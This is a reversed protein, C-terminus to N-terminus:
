MSEINEPYTEQHFADRGQKYDAVFLWGCSVLRGFGDHIPVTLCSRTDRHQHYKSGPPRQSPVFPSSAPPMSFPLHPLVGSFSAAVLSMIMMMIMMIIMMTSHKTTKTKLIEYLLFCRINCFSFSVSYYAQISVM